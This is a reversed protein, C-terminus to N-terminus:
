QDLIYNRWQKVFNIQLYIDVRDTHRLLQSPHWFFTDSIGGFGSISSIGLGGDDGGGGNTLIIIKPQSHSVVAELDPDCV